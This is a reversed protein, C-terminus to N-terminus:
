RIPPEPVAFRIPPPSSPHPPLSGLVTQEHIGRLAVIQRRLDALLPAYAREKLYCGGCLGVMFGLLLLAAGPLLNPNEPNM